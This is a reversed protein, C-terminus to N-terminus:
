VNKDGKKYSLVQSCFVQGKSYPQVRALLALKVKGIWGKSFYLIM